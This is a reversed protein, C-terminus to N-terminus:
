EVGLTFLSFSAWAKNATMKGVDIETKRRETNCFEAEGQSSPTSGFLVVALFCPDNTMVLM